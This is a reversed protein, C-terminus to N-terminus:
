RGNQDDSDHGTEDCSQDVHEGAASRARAFSPASPSVRDQCPKQFLGIELLKEFLRNKLGSFYARFSAQVGM